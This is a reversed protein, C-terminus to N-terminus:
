RGTDPHPIKKMRQNFGQWRPLDVDKAYAILGALHNYFGWASDFNEYAAVEALGFKEVAYLHRDIRKITHKALRPRDSDVLLGLVLKRSGPGKIRTKKSNVTFKSKGITKLVARHINIVTRRDPFDLSSSLVIDDAYRTYTLGWQEALAELAADLGAAALNSLMPSTPAGQPLVGMMNVERQYLNYRKSKDLFDFAIDDSPLLKIAHKNRIPLHLTTTLRAMEFSILPEYGANHFIKYVDSEDISYFFDKLDYQFLWRAGCHMASCKKVGGNSHFAFAPAPSALQNLIEQSIFKQVQFLQSSVQHIFRRGGSRKQIPFMRYNASERYRHVTARLFAYNVGTIQALHGLTFVVPLRAKMLRNACSALSRAAEPGLKASAQQTLHHTSWNEM